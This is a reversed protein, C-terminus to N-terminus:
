FRKSLGAFTDVRDSARTVGFNAGVDFQWDDGQRDPRSLAYSFLGSEFQIHGADVAAKPRL